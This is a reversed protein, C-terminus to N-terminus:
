CKVFVLIGDIYVGFKPLKKAVNDTGNKNTKPNSLSTVECSQFNYKFVRKTFVEKMIAASIDQIYKYFETM